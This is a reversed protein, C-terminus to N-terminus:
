EAASAAAPPVHAQGDNPSQERRPIGSSSEAQVKIGLYLALEGFLVAASSRPVRFRHTFDDADRLTLAIVEGLAAGGIAVVHAPIFNALSFRPPGHGQEADRDRPLAALEDRRQQEASAVQSELLM